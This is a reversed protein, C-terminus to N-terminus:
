RSDGWYLRLAAWYGLALGACPAIVYTVGQAWHALQLHDVLMGAPAAVAMAGVSGFVLMVLEVPRRRIWRVTSRTM